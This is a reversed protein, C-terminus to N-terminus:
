KTELLTRLVTRALGAATKSGVSTAVWGRTHDDARIRRLGLLAILEDGVRAALDDDTGIRNFRYTHSADVNARVDRGMAEHEPTCCPEEAFRRDSAGRAEEGSGEEPKVPEPDAFSTTKERLWEIHALAKVQAGATSCQLPQDIHAAGGEFFDAVTWEGWVVAIAEERSDYLRDSYFYAGEHDQTVVDWEERRPHANEPDTLHLPRIGVRRTKITM